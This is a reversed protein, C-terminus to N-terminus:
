FHSLVPHDKPADTFILGTFVDHKWRPHKLMKCCVVDDLEFGFHLMKEDTETLAAEGRLGLYPLGTHPNIFDAWYGLTKLSACIDIASRTFSEALAERETVASESWRNSGATTRHSLVIATLPSVGFNKSPFVSALDQKVLSPCTLITCELNSKPPILLPEPSNLEGHDRTCLLVSAYNEERSQPLTCVAPVFSSYVCSENKTASLGVSGPLPYQPNVFDIPGLTQNPWQHKSQGGNIIVYNAPKARQSDSYTNVSLRFQKVLRDYNKFINQNAQLAKM